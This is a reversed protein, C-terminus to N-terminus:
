PAVPRCSPRAPDHYFHQITCASQGAHDTPVDCIETAARDRQFRITYSWHGYVNVATRNCFNCGSPDTEWIGTSIETAVDSAGGAVELQFVALSPRHDIPSRIGEGWPTVLAAHGDAGTIMSKPHQSDAFTLATTDPKIPFVADDTFRLAVVADAIPAGQEDAVEVNLLNGFTPQEDCTWQHHSTIKWVGDGRPVAVAPGVELKHVAEVADGRLIAVCNEGEALDAISFYYVAPGGVIMSPEVERTGNRDVVRARLPPAEGVSTNGSFLSFTVTQGAMVALPHLSLTPDLSPSATDLTCSFPPLATDSSADSPDSGNGLSGSCGALSTLVSALVVAPAAQM